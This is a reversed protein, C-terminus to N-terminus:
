NKGIVGDRSMASVIGKAEDRASTGSTQQNIDRKLQSSTEIAWVPKKSAVSFVQIAMTITHELELGAPEKYETLEVSWVNYYATSRINHTSQPNAERMKKATELDVLQTLLVSDADIEDVMRLITERNLPVKTNMM